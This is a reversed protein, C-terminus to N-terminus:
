LLFSILLNLSITYPSLTTPNTFLRSRSHLLFTPLFPRNSEPLIFTTLFNTHYYFFSTHHYIKKTYSVIQPISIPHYPTNNSDLSFFLLPYTQLTINSNSQYHHFYNTNPQGQPHHLLQDKFKWSHPIELSLSLMHVTPWVMRLLHLTLQTYTHPTYSHAFNKLPPYCFFYYSTTLQFCRTVGHHTVPRSAFLQLRQATAHYRPHASRLIGHQQPLPEQSGSAFWRGQLLPFPYQCSNIIFVAFPSTHVVSPPSVHVRFIQSYYSPQTCYLRDSHVSPMPNLRRSRATLSLSSHFPVRLIVTNSLANCLLLLFCLVCLHFPSM